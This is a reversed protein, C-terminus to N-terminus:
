TREEREVSFAQAWAALILALLMWTPKRHEWTLTFVGAAWVLMTTLWLAREGARMMWVCAALVAALLGCLAAGVAGTEVAVSLFTNHAVYEHGPIGPRGLWPYVAAPYAGAGSGRLPHRRFAKVGAKWIQTRNHLTGRTLESHLTSLRERAATPALWVAGGLLAALMAVSFVRREFTAERWTLVAYLFSLAAVVLAMRSATLLIAAILLFGSSWLTWRSRRRTRAALYLTMPLALALTLGLDNPDFGATAYRRYYTQHDLAYRVMTFVSSVAAGYVYSRMLWQQRLESRCFEWMMWLMLLLQTLTIFRKCSLWPSISWFCTLGSWLVFCAALVIGLNIGRIRRRAFVAAVAALFGLAGILRSMTGIGPLLVAKELPLSLALACILVWALRDLAVVASRNV